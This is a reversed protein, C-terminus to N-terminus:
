CPREKEAAEQRALPVELTLQHEGGVEALFSLKGGNQELLGGVLAVESENIAGLFRRILDLALLRDFPAGNMKVRVQATSESQGIAAEVGTRATRFPQYLAAAMDRAALLRRLLAVLEVDDWPKRIFRVVEGDNVAALVSNFDAYGSLMARVTAPFLRKVEMLLEAGNMGPMRFDSLVLDVPVQALRQLAEAGSTALEVDFEGRLLRRLAKGIEVEDDVVLITKRVSM